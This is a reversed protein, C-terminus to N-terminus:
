ESTESLKSLIYSYGGESHPIMCCSCDKVGEKTYIFDGGCSEGLSYLPCYCFLCNFCEGESEHCPFYQCSENKFYSSSNEM